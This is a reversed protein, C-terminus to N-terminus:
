SGGWERVQGERRGWGTFACRHRWRALGPVQSEARHGTERRGSWAVMRSDRTCDRFCVSETGMGGGVRSAGREQITSGGLDRCGGPEWRGLSSAGAKGHSGSGQSSSAWGQVVRRGETGPGAPRVRRRDKRWYGLSTGVHPVSAGLAEWPEIGWKRWAEAVQARRASGQRGVGQWGCPDAARM